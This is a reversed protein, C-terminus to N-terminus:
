YFMHKEKNVTNPTPISQLTEGDPTTSYRCPYIIGINVGSQLYHRDDSHGEKKKVDEQHTASSVINGNFNQLSKINSPTHHQNLCARGDCHLHAGQPDLEEDAQLSETM